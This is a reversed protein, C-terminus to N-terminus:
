RRPPRGPGPSPGGPPPPAPRPPEPRPPPSPRVPPPEPRPPPSPRVPPPPPPEPRPPPSPRVPPPPPPEPRPPPSPRVPPPEPRPPPNPRVPPPPPPEPRPPPSPRVPPPPPPTPHPPRPPEPRVPPPPVPHPPRPPGPRVPPPPLPRPNPGPYHNGVCREYVPDWRYGPECRRYIPGGIPVCRGYVSDWARGPGCYRVRDVCRNLVPDWVDGPYCDRSTRVCAGLYSDWYSGIPCWRHSPMCRGYYSDWYSDIPCSRHHPRRVCIRLDWDYFEGIGCVYPEAVCRGYYSDWHHNIPCRPAGSRVCMDLYHDYYYGPQCRITPPPTPYQVCSNTDPNYYTGDPCTDLRIQVCYGVTEDFYYGPPCSYRQEDQDIVRLEFQRTNKHGESDKIQFAFNYVGAAKPYGSLNIATAALRKRWNMGEPLQSEFLDSEFSTGWEGDKGKFKIEQDYDRELKATPLRRDTTFRPYQVGDNDEAHMCLSATAKLREEVRAGIVFCWSGTFEPTGYIVARNRAVEAISLGAPLTNNLLVWRAPQAPDEELAIELEQYDGYRGVLEKEDFLLRGGDGGFDTTFRPDASPRASNNNSDACATLGIVLALLMSCLTALPPSGLYRKM